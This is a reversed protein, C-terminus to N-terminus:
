MFVENAVAANRTSTPEQAGRTERMPMVVMRRSSSRSARMAAAASRSPLVAGCEEDVGDRLRQDPREHKLLEFLLGSAFADSAGLVNLVGIREDPITAAPMSLAGSPLCTLTSSM